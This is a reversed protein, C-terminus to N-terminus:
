SWIQPLKSLVKRFVTWGGWRDHVERYARASELWGEALAKFNRTSAGGARMITLPEPIYTAKLNWKEILILQQKYDAASKYSPDLPGVVGELAARRVFFAPHPLQRGSLSTGRLEGSKWYRLTRGGEDIIKIDGYVIDASTDNFAMLVKKLVNSDAYYDDSNLFGIYDGSAVRFGQNMADYIGSDSQCIVKLDENESLSIAVTEDTSMGDKLIHEISVCRQSKVSRITDRVTRSSNLAVTVISFHPM